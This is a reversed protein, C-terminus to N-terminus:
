AGACVSPLRIVFTTGTGPQSEVWMEGGHNQTIIFYSVSLGLGTGKGPPKTTFFPEFVRRRLAEHMGPGNDSIALRLGDYSEETTVAIHIAPDERRDTADIDAFAESANKLLNFIVQELETPVCTITPLDDPCDFSIHISRFDHHKRLDYDNDALALAKRIIAEIDCTTRSSDSRRSFDLMNRVITAARACADRIHGLLMPVGRAELYNKLAELDMGTVSAAKINGALDTALRREINQAAQAIASLPNNIEHAMGAAVGGVSHMKETQIMLERMRHQETVDRIVAICYDHTEHKLPSLSVEARFPVGEAGIHVWDFRHSRGRIAAEIHQLAMQPSPRGDPQLPPSMEHISRGILKGRHLGFLREAINNCDAIRAGDIVIIADMVSDYLSRYTALTDALEREARVRRTVDRVICSAYRGGDIPQPELMVDLHMKWGAVEKTLEMRQTGSFPPAPIGPLIDGLAIGELTDREALRQASHNCDMVIGTAADLTFIADGSSELLARFREVQQLNRRLEPYYSKRVSDEGFGILQKRIDDRSPKQM